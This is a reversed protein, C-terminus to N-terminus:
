DVCWQQDSDLEVAVFDHFFWDRVIARLGGMPDIDLRFAEHLYEKLPHIRAEETCVENLRQTFSNVANKYEQSDEDAHLRALEITLPDQRLQYALREAIDYILCETKTLEFVHVIDVIKFHRVGDERVPDIVHGLLGLGKLRTEKLDENTLIVHCGARHILDHLPWTNEPVPIKQANERTAIRCRRGDGYKFLVGGGEGLRTLSKWPNRIPLDDFKKPQVALGPWKVLLGSDTLKGLNPDNWMYWRNLMTNKPFAGADSKLLSKPAWRFGRVELRPRTLCLIRQPIGGYKAAILKWVRSMRANVEAPASAIQQVPLQLLTAVCLAEDSEVTVSRYRLGESLLSLDKGVRVNLATENRTDLSKPWMARMISWQEQLEKKFPLYVIRDLSQQWMSAMLEQLSRARNEFQFWLREEALVGEQLTWLRQLWSSTFVRTLCEHAPIKTSDYTMLDGDLVLVCDANRYTQELMVIALTKLSLPSVPCCLTDIWLHMEGGDLTPKERQSTNNMDTQEKKKALTEDTELSRGLDSVLKGLQAIRCRPLSNAVPNGLGYAWVHSIAVYKEKGTYRVVEISVDELSRNFNKVTLLPLRGTSLHEELDRVEMSIDGCACNERCHLTKYENNKIQNWKCFDDRCGHHDRFTDAKKMMSVFYLTQVSTFREKAVAVDYPCWGAKLMRTRRDEEFLGVGIDMPLFEPREVGLAQFAPTASSAFLEYVSAISFKVRWDFDNNPSHLMYSVLRLCKTANRYQVAKDGTGKEVRNRWMEQMRGLLRGTSVYVTDGETVKYDEVDYADGLFVQLLGFLLWTQYLCEQQQTALPPICTWINVELAEPHSYLDPWTTYGQRVPYTLFPLGDYPIAVYPIKLDSPLPDAPLLLHDM